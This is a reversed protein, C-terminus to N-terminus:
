ISVHFTMSLNILLSCALSLLSSFFCAVDVVAVLKDLGFAFLFFCSASALEKVSMFRVCRQQGGYPGRHHCKCVKIPKTRIDDFWVQEGDGLTSSELNQFFAM